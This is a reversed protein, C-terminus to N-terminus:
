IFCTIFLCQFSDPHTKCISCQLVGAMRCLDYDNIAFSLTFYITSWRYSFRHHTSAKLSFNQIVNLFNLRRPHLPPSINNIVIIVHVSPLILFFLLIYINWLILADGFSYLYIYFKTFLFWTDRNYTYELISQRPHHHFTFCQLSKKPYVQYVKWM